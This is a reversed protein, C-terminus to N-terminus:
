IGPGCPFCKHEAEAASRVRNLRRTSALKQLVLCMGPLREQAQRLAPEFQVRTSCLFIGTPQQRRLPRRTSGSGIV